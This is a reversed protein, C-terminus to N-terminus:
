WLLFRCNKGGLASVWGVSSFGAKLIESYEMYISLISKRGGTAVMPNTLVSLFRSLWLELLIYAKQLM